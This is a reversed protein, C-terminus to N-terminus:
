IFYDIKGDSNLRSVVPTLNEDSEAGQETALDTGGEQGENTSERNSEGDSVDVSVLELGEESFLEQLRSLSQDVADRVMGHQSQIQLAVQDQQMHIRVQLPGLEPPDLQIQASDMNRSVLFGLQKGLQESWDKRSFPVALRIDVSKNEAMAPKSQELSAMSTDNRTAQPIESTPQNTPQNAQLSSLPATAQERATNARGMEEGEALGSQALQAAFQQRNSEAAPKDTRSGLTDRFRSASDHEGKEVTRSQRNVASAEIEAAPLKNEVLLDADANILDSEAVEAAAAEGTAVTAAIQGSGPLPAQKVDAGAAAASQLAPSAVPGKEPLFALDEFIDSTSEASGGTAPTLDAMASGDMSLGPTSGDSHSHTFGVTAQPLTSGPPLEERLSHRQPVAIEVPRQMAAPIQMDSALDAVPVPKGSEPWPGGERPLVAGGETSLQFKGLPTATLPEGSFFLSPTAGEEGLVQPTLPFDRPQANDLQSDFLSAFAHQGSGDDAREGARHRQVLAGQGAEAAQLGVSERSNFHSSQPAFPDTNNFAFLGKGPSSLNLLNAM